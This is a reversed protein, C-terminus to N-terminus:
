EATPSWTRRCSSENRPAATRPARRGPWARGAPLDPGPGTPPRRRPPPCETVGGVVICLAAISLLPAHRCHVDDVSGVEAPEATPLGFHVAVGGMVIEHGQACAFGGVEPRLDNDSLAVAFSLQQVPDM